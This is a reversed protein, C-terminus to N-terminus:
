RYCVTGFTIAPKGDGSTEACTDKFPDTELYFDDSGNEGSSLNTDEFYKFISEDETVEQNKITSTIRDNGEKGSSNNRTLGFILLGVSLILLILVATFLNPNEIKVKEKAM